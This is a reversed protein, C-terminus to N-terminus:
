SSAYHSTYRCLRVSFAFPRADEVLRRDVIYIDCLIQMRFHYYMSSTHLLVVFLKAAQRRRGGQKVDACLGYSRGKEVKYLKRGIM